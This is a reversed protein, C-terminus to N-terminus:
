AAHLPLNRVVSASPRKELNSFVFTQSCSSVYTALVYVVLLNLYSHLLFLWPIWGPGM